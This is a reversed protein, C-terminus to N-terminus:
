ATVGGEVVGAPALDGLRELFRQVVAGRVAPALGAVEIAALFAAVVLQAREQELQVHREAIGLRAMSELLQRLHGAVKDLLVLEGRLGTLGTGAAVHDIANVKSGVVDLMSTLAGALQEMASVPDKVPSASALGPWLKAVEAEARQELQRQEAAAQVQPAAGGHKYCVTGGKIPWRGCPGGEANHGACRGHTQGCRDCMMPGSM